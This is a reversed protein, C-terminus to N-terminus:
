TTFLRSHFRYFPQMIEGGETRGTCALPLSALFRLGEIVEMGVGTHVLRSSLQSGGGRRIRRPELHVLPRPHHRTWWRATGRTTLAEVVTITTTPRGSSRPSGYRVDSCFPHHLPTLFAGLKYVFPVCSSGNWVSNWKRHSMRHVSRTCICVKQQCLPLPPTLLFIKSTLYPPRGASAGGGVTRGVDDLPLLQLFDLVGLLVATLFVVILLPIVPSPKKSM